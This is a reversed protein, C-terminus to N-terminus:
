QQRRHPAAKTQKGCSLSTFGEFPRALRLQKEDATIESIPPTAASSHRTKM